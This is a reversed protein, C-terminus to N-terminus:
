SASKELGVGKKQRRINSMRYSARAGSVKDGGRINLEARAEKVRKHIDARTVGYKEGLHAMSEEEFVMQCAYALVRAELDPQKSEIIRHLMYRIGKSYESYTDQIFSLIEEKVEFLDAVKSLISTAHEFMSQEYEPELDDIATKYDIMEPEHDINAFTVKAAQHSM